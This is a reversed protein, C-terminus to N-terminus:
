FFLGQFFFLGFVPELRSEKESENAQARARERM